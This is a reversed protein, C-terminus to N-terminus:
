DAISSSSLNLLKDWLDFHHNFPHTQSM